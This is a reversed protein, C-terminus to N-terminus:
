KNASETKDAQYKNIESVSWKLVANAVSQTANVLAKAPITAEGRPAPSTAYFVKSVIPKKTQFEVIRATLEFRAEGSKSNTPEIVEFRGVDLLLMYDTRVTYDRSIAKFAGSKDFTEIFLNQIAKPANTDLEVGDLFALAGNQVIVPIEATNLSAATNPQLIMLSSNIHGTSAIQENARFPVIIPAKNPKPLVSICASIAVSSCLLSFGILARTKM